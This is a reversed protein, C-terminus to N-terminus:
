ATTGNLEGKLYRSFFVSDEDTWTNRPKQLLTFIRNPKTKNCEVFLKELLWGMKESSILGLSWKIDFFNRNLLTDYKQFLTDVLRISYENGYLALIKKAAQKQRIYNPSTWIRVNTQELYRFHFYDVLDKPSFDGKNPLNNFYVALEDWKLTRLGKTNTM